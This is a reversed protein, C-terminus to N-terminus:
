ILIKLLGAETDHGHGYFIGLLVFRGHSSPLFERLVDHRKDPNTLSQFIDFKKEKRDKRIDAWLRVTGISSCTPEFNSFCNTKCISHEFSVMRVFGLCKISTLSSELEM